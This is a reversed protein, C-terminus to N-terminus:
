KEAILVTYDEPTHDLLVGRDEGLRKGNGIISRLQHVGDVLQSGILVDVQFSTDHQRSFGGEGDLTTGGEMEGALEVHIGDLLAESGEEGIAHDLRKLNQVNNEPM